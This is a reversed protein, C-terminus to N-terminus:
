EEIHEKCYNEILQVEDDELEFDLVKETKNEMIHYHSIHPGSEDVAFLVRIKLGNESFLEDEEPVEIQLFFEYRSGSLIGFPDEIKEVSHNIIEMNDMRENM